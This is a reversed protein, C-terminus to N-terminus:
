VLVLGLSTRHKLFLPSALPKTFIDAPM